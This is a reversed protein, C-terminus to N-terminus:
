ARTTLLCTFSVSLSYDDCLEEFHLDDVGAGPWLETMFNHSLSVCMSQARCVIEVNQHRASNHRIDNEMLVTDFDNPVMAQTTIETLDTVLENMEVIFDGSGVTTTEIMDIITSSESIELTSSTTTSMIPSTSTVISTSSSAISNTRTSTSSELTTSEVDSDGSGESQSNRAHQLLDKLLPDRPYQPVESEDVADDEKEPSSEVGESSIMDVLLANALAIDADTTNANTTTETVMDVVVMDAALEAMVRDEEVKELNLEGTGNTKDNELFTQLTRVHESPQRHQVGGDSLLFDAPDFAEFAAALLPLVRM